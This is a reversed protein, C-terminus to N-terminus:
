PSFLSASEAGLLAFFAPVDALESRLRNGPALFSLARPAILASLLRTDARAIGDHLFLEPATAFAVKDEILTRLTSRVNQVVVRQVRSDLAATMLALQGVRQGRAHVEIPGLGEVADFLAQLAVVQRGVLPRGVASLRTAMTAAAATGGGLPEFALVTREDEVFSPGADDLVVLVGPATGQRKPVDFVFGDVDVHVQDSSRFFTTTSDGEIGLLTRVDARHEEQFSLADTVNTPLTPVAITDVLRLALDRLTTQTQPLVFSFWAAPLVAPDPEPHEPQELIDPLAFARALLAYDEARHHANYSHHATPTEDVFFTPQHEFFAFVPATQEQLAPVAMAASFCCRDNRNFGLVAHRGALLAVLHTYDGVVGLGWPTQEADGLDRDIVARSLLSTFGAVPHVVAIRPDLAGTVISQWGGGSLGTVAIANPDAEPLALAADIARRAALYLPASANVGVLDFYPLRSHYNEADNTPGYRIFEVSVSTAGRRAHEACRKQQEAEILGSVTHGHFDVVIPRPSPAQMPRYLLGAVWLAPLAELVFSQVRIDADEYVLAGLEMAVDHSRWSAPADEYIDLLLRRRLEVSRENWEVASDPPVVRAVRDHVFCAVQLSETSRSACPDAVEDGESEDGSESEGVDGADDRQGGKSDDDTADGTSDGMTTGSVDDPRASRGEDSAQSTAELLRRPAGETCASGWAVTWALVFQALLSPRPPRWAESRRSNM